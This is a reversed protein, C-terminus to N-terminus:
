FDLQSLVKLTDIDYSAIKNESVTYLTNGIYLIRNIPESGAYQASKHEITGLVKLKYDATYKIIYAGVFNNQTTGYETYIDVPVAFLQKGLNIMFAKHNYLSESSASGKGLVMNDIEKINKMDATDFISFKLGNNQIGFETEKTEHGIGLIKTDSLPHLYQSYGPIKLYGLVVPKQPVSCDIAFFPDIQKFTVLYALDDMFRVAYIQEGKALEETKGIRELTQSYIDIRSTTTEDGIYGISTNVAVRLNGKYEDLAWQNLLRGEIEKTRNFVIHGHELSFQTLVTKERQSETKVVVDSNLTQEFYMPYQTQAIYLHENSMYFTEGSSLYVEADPEAALDDLAIAFTMMMGTPKTDPFYYIREPGFTIEPKNDIKLTPYPMEGYFSDQNLVMYFSQDKLRSSLSHGNLVYSKSLKPSEITKLDYIDVVTKTQYYPMIFYRKDTQETYIQGKQLVGIAILKTGSIYLEQFYTDTESIKAKQLLSPGKTDIIVVAGNKITYVYRGDTKTIDAEDIGEEQVNTESYDNKTKAASDETASPTGEVGYRYEYTQGLNPFLKKLRAETGIVPLTYKEAPTANAKLIVKGNQISYGKEFLLTLLSEDTYSVGSVLKVSSSLKENHGNIWATNSGGHLKVFLLDKELTIAKEEKVWSVKFGISEFTSRVPLAKSAADVQPAGIFLSFLMVLCM